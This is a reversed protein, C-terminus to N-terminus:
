SFYFFLPMPMYAKEQENKWAMCKTDCLARRSRFVKFFCFVLPWLQTKSMKFLTLYIVVKRPCDINLLHITFQLLVLKQPQDGLFQGCISVSIVLPWYAPGFGSTQNPLRFNSASRSSIALSQKHEPRKWLYDKWLCHLIFAAKKGTVNKSFGATEKM